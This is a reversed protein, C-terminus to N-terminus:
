WGEKTRCVVAIEAALEEDSGVSVFDSVLEPPLRSYFLCEWVVRTLFIILIDLPSRHSHLRHILPSTAVLPTSCLSSFLM